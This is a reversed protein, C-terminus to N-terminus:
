LSKVSQLTNLVLGYTAITEDLELICKRLRKKKEKQQIFLKHKDHLGNLEQDVSDHLQKYQKTLQLQLQYVYQASLQALVLTKDESPLKGYLISPLLKNLVTISSSKDKLEDVDIIAFENLDLEISPVELTFDM